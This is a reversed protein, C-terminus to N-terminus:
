AGKRVGARVAASNKCGERQSCGGQKAAAAAAAAATHTCPMVQWACVCVDYQQPQAILGVCVATLAGVENYSLARALSLTLM